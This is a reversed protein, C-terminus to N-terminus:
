FTSRMPPATPPTAGAIQDGAPPEVGPLGLLPLDDALDGADALMHLVRGLRVHNAPCNETANRTVRCTSSATEVLRLIDRQQELLEGVRDEVLRALAGPQQRASRSLHGLPRHAADACPRVVLCPLTFARGNPAFVELGDPQTGIM